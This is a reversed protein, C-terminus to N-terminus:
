RVHRQATPRCGTLVPQPILAGCASGASVLNMPLFAPSELGMGEVGTPIKLLGPRQMASYAATPSQVALM